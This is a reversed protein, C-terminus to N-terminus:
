GWLSEVVLCFNGQGLDFIPKFSVVSNGSPAIPNSLIAYFREVKASGGCEGAQFSLGVADFRFSSSNSIHLYMVGDTRWSTQAKEIAESIGNDLRTLQQPTQHRLVTNTFSYEGSRM